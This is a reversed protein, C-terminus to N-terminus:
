HSSHLRTSKRDQKGHPELMFIPPSAILDDAPAYVDKGAVQTWRLASVRIGVEDGTDNGISLSTTAKDPSLSLKVPNVQFSSAFSPAAQFLQAAVFAMGAARISARWRRGTRASLPM